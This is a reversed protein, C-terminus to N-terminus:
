GEVGVRQVHALVNRRRLEAKRSPATTLWPGYDCVTSDQVASEDRRMVLEGDGTLQGRSRSRERRTSYARGGRGPERGPGSEGRTTLEDDDDDRDDRRRERQLGDRLCCMCATMTTATVVGVLYVYCGQYEDQKSSVDEM